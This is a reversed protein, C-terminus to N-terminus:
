YGFATLAYPDFIDVAIHKEIAIGADRDARGTMAMGFHHARNLILGRFQDMHAASIIVVTVHRLEGLLEVRNHRHWRRRSRMEGVTAGFRDLRSQLEGHM